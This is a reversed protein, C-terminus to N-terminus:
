TMLLIGLWKKEKEIYKWERLFMQQYYNEIKLSCIWNINSSFLKSQLRM